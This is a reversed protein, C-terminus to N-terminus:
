KLIVFKHSTALQDNIIEQYFYIGNELTTENIQLSNTGETLTYKKIFQGLANYILLEGKKGQDLFYDFQMNGNNPNPYLKNLDNEIPKLDNIGTVLCAGMSDVKVLWMDEGGDIGLSNIAYGSIIFGNDTTHKIDTFYNQDNWKDFKMSWLSDGLSNLQVLWGKPNYPTITDSLIGCIVINGNSLEIPKGDFEDTQNKGYKKQWVLGGVSNIRVIYADFDFSTLRYGGNIIYDGNSTQIVGDAGESLSGGFTKQWQFNGASDVKVIYMDYSGAGYSNTNGALIYGNDTTKSVSLASEEGSGGYNKQWLLNGTSDTKVLWMNENGGGSFAKSGGALIYTGDPNQICFNFAEWFPTAFQKTFITDGNADLKVLLANADSTAINVISCGLAYGGTANGIISNGSYYAFSNKEYLKTWLTDGVANTKVFYLGRYTTTIVQGATLYGGDTTQLVSTSGEQQNQYDYTKNFYTQCLLLSHLSIFIFLIILRKKM